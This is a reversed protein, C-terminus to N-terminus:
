RAAARAQALALAESLGAAVFVGDAAFGPQRTVVIVDRGDLRRGILEYTKRGMIIPKGMTVARFKRM